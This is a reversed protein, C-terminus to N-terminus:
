NDGNWVELLYDKLLKASSHEIDRAAFVFTVQDTHRVINLLRIVEPNNHLELQYRQMFEEWRTIDHSYWKRLESSPAIDKFWYDIKASEKTLGRPWLREVLVRTGDEQAPQEYVRKLRIM